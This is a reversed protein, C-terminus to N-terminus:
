YTVCLALKEEVQHAEVWFPRAMFQLKWSFRPAGNQERSEYVHALFTKLKALENLIKKEYEFVRQVRQANKPTSTFPLERFLKGKSLPLILLQSYKERNVQYSLTLKVCKFDISNATVEIEEKIQENNRVEQGFVSRYKPAHSNKAALLVDNSYVYELTVSTIPYLGINTLVLM